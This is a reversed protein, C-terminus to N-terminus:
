KKLGQAFLPDYIRLPKIMGGPLGQQYDRTDTGPCEIVKLVTGISFLFM